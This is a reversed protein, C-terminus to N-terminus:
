RYDAWAPNIGYSERRFGIRLCVGGEETFKLSNELLIRLIHTIKEADGILIIPIQPDVDFVLELKNDTNKLATMTIVDNVVSTIM